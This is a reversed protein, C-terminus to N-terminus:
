YPQYNIIEFCVYDIIICVDYTNKNINKEEDRARCIVRALPRSTASRGRRPRQQGVMRMECSESLSGLLRRGRDRVRVKKKKKKKNIEKM